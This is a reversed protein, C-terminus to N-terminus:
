RRVSWFVSVNEEEDRGVRKTHTNIKEAGRKIHAYRNVHNHWSFKGDSYWLMIIRNWSIKSHCDWKVWAGFSLSWVKSLSLHIWAGGLPFRGMLTQTQTPSLSVTSCFSTLDERIDSSFVLCVHLYKRTTRKRVLPVIFVLEDRQHQIQSGFTISNELACVKERPKTHSNSSGNWIMELSQKNQFHDSRHQSTTIGLLSGAGHRSSCVCLCIQPCLKWLSSMINPSLFLHDGKLRIGVHVM